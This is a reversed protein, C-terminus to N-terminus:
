HMKEKKTTNKKHFGPHFSLYAKRTQVDTVSQPCIIASFIIALNQNLTIRFFPIYIIGRGLRLFCPFDIGGYDM